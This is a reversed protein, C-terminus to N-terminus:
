EIIKFRKKIKKNVLNQEKPNPSKIGDIFFLVTGM